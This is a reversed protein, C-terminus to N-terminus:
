LSSQSSQYWCRAAKTAEKLCQDCKGSGDPKLTTEVFKSLKAQCLATEGARAQLFSAQCQTYFQVSTFKSYLFCVSSGKEFFGYGVCKGVHADCSAACEDRTVGMLPTTALDGGCTQPHNVQKKDVFYMIPMYQGSANVIKGAEKHVVLQGKIAELKQTAEKAQVTQKDLDRTSDEAATAAAETKFNGGSTVTAANSVATALATKLERGARAADQCKGAWIKANQMLNAAAPDGASGFLQQMDAAAGEGAQAITDVDSIASGLKLNAETASQSATTLESETDSCTHMAFVSNKSKGGCMQMNDGNCVSDCESSDSAMPTYFPTCYCDVGNSIGFFGMDPIMRCFRFCVEHTMAQRDEKVVHDNYHVISSSSVDEMKYQYKNNGFKDGHVYMADKVCDVLFFGDKTITTPFPQLASPDMGAGPNQLFSLKQGIKGCEKKWTDTTQVEVTLFQDEKQRVIASAVGGDEYKVVYSSGFNAVIEGSYWKAKGGHRAQV